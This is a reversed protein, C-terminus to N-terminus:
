IQIIRIPKMNLKWVLRNDTQYGLYRYRNPNIPLLYDTLGKIFISNSEEFMTWQSSEQSKIPHDTEHVFSTAFLEIVSKAFSPLILNYLFIRDIWKIHKIGSM